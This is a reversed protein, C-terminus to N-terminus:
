REHKSPKAPIIKKNAGIDRAVSAGAGVITKEGIAISQIVTARSGIHVFDGTKVEGCLVAGPSIHNCKGISCGHEIISGTNIITDDGISAEPQIIAGAMVQVGEGIKVSNSIIADVSILSKFKFGRDRYKKSIEPRINSYPLLGVANYLNVQEPNYTEFFDEDSNLFECGNLSLIKRDESICLDISIDKKKLENFVVLAHGGCGLLINKKVNNM